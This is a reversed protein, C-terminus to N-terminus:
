QAQNPQQLYRQKVAESLQFVAMAYLPSHNYRTIVYFNHLGIWLSSQPDLPYELLKATDTKSLTNPIEVQLQQLHAITTDPKIGKGLARVYDSGNAIVPIAITEGPRWHNASFYNAISAAADGTNHWIDALGDGDFDRAYNRYSTPMFQGLGFAGAYSGIPQLPDLNQERCLVLFQQLESLFFQNRKHYAFGLTALADIVRYKGPSAGYRTEVGMIAVLIEAPVGYQEAVANFSAQNDRWFQAGDNIRQETMFIARYQDWPKGEAPRDMADLIPQQINVQKFLAQLAEANFNHQSSMQHIFYDLSASAPVEAQAVTSLVFGLGILLTRIQM